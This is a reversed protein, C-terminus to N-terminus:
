FQAGVQLGVNYSSGPNDTEATRAFDQDFLVNYSARLDAVFGGASTRLGAGIPVRGSTDDRFTGNDAGRFNVRDIGVGGLAYPQVYPTPLNFTAALQGGNRIFDPGSVAGANDAGSISDDVEFTGGSYMGELGMWTLPQVAASATWIPGASLQDRLGATPTEFGGGVKLNAVGPLGRDKRSGRGEDGSGGIAEEDEWTNIDVRTSPSDLPQQMEVPEQYDPLDDGFQEQAQPDMMQPDDLSHQQAAAAGAWGLAAAAGLAMWRKYSRRTM